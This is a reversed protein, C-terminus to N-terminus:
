YVILNMNLMNCGGYNKQKRLRDLTWNCCANSIDRRVNKQATIQVHSVLCAKWFFIGTVYLTIAAMTHNLRSHPRHQAGYPWYRNRSLVRLINCALITLFSLGQMVYSLPRSICTINEAVTLFGRPIQLM